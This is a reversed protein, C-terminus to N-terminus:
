NLGNHSYIYSEHLIHVCRETMSERRTVSVCAKYKELHKQLTHVQNFTWEQHRGSETRLIGTKLKRATKPSNYGYGKIGAQHIEALKIGVGLLIRHVADIVVRDEEEQGDGYYCRDRLVGYM